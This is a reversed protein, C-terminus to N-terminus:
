HAPPKMESDLAAEKALEELAMLAEVEKGEPVFLHDHYFGSVPNAGIGRETLSKSIAAMFGVVELSSHVECTIMRCPFTPKLHHDKASQSTTIVTLGEAERFAMQQFLTQPPPSGVSPFTLFVFTDPHVSLRLTCLLRSLSLEGPTPVSM